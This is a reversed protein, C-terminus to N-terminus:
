LVLFFNAAAPATYDVVLKSYTTGAYDIDQFYDVLDTVTEDNLKIRFTVKGSALASSVGSTVVFPAEYLYANAAASVYSDLTSGVSANPANNWTITTKDWTIDTSRATDFTYDAPYTSNHAEFFNKIYLTASNITSGSPVTALNFRLWARCAAGVGLTGILLETTSNYNTTPSGQVVFVDAEPYLTVSSM